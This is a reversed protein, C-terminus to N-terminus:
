FESKTVNPPLLFESFYVSEQAHTICKQLVLNSSVVTFILKFTGHLSMRRFNGGVEINHLNLNGGTTSLLPLM